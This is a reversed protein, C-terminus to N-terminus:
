GGLRRLAARAESVFPQLEPDAHMWAQAVIRYDHVAAARNGTREFARARELAWPVRLYLGDFTYWDPQAAADKHLNLRNLLQLRVFRVGTCGPCTSDPLALLASVAAASDRRALATFADTADRMYRHFAQWAPVGASTMASDTRRRYRRLSATDGSRAWFALAGELFEARGPTTRLWQEYVRRATDAPVTGSMVLENFREPLSSGLVPFAERLHGRAVLAEWLVKRRFGLDKFFPVNSHRGASFARVVRLASQASDDWTSLPFFTWFLQDASSTDLITAARPSAPNEILELALTMSSRQPGEPLHAASARLYRRLPWDIEPQATATLYGFQVLHEYNPTFGSDLAIAADLMEVTRAFSIRGTARGFHFFAETVAYAADPDDPHRRSLEEAADLMRSATTWWPPKGTPDGFLAALSLGLGTNVEVTLSDRASLGRNLAAARRMNEMADADEQTGLFGRALSYRVLALASTSDLRRARDYWVVASDWRSKRFFQEGSLYAKLGPLSRFGLSARRTLGVARTRGLERLIGLTLSDLLGDMRDVAGRKEVEGLSEGSKVDLLTANIRASDPGIASVRGFLTVGAGTRHGLDRAAVPDARGPWGRIAQSAPVTRLDGAGELNAALVDVMGERWLELRSDLVDFPAVAIRSADLRPALAKRRLAFGGATATVTLLLVAAALAAKRARTRSARPRTKAGAELAAAFQGASAYRDAPVKALARAVATELGAPLNPRVSHLPPVPDLTHRAMIAVGSSGQFPPAGALMEYTVCALSYIDSRGDIVRDAAIQEPSMYAPTGIAIGTETLTKTDAVGLARAIGFDAVLVEDGDLLLNEPKIDRHIINQQHAHELASAVAHAIRVATDVPVAGGSNLRERLSGGTILPMVYFPVGNAEGADYMPLIHPHRLQAAIRIERLFRKTGIASALEERLVKVAVPRDHQRDHARYVVAMGGRGLEADIAYREALVQGILVPPL